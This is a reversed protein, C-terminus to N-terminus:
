YSVLILNSICKRLQVATDDSLDQDMILLSIDEFDAFKRLHIQHMKSSDSLLIVHDSCHLMATKIQALDFTATTLGQTCSIGSTALFVKDFYLKKLEDIMQSGYSYHFGNRITGGFVSLHYDSRSELLRIVDLDNSFITLDHLNSHVLEEALALMTTGTDILISDGNQIEQLARKAIATKQEKHFRENLTPEPMTASNLIAGGHTRSIVGTSELKTLDTRITADSVNFHKALEKVSISGAAQILSTIELLREESYLM